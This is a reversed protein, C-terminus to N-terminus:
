CDPTRMMGKKGEGLVQFWRKAVVGGKKKGKKGQPHRGRTRWIWKKKEVHQIEGIMMKWGNPVLGAHRIADPATRGRPRGAARKSEAKQKYRAEEKKKKKSKRGNGLMSCLYFLFVDRKIM